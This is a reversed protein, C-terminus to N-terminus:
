AVSRNEAQPPRASVRRAATEMARQLHEHKDALHVYVKSIMELSTHGMCAAVTLPDVGNLIANTGWAHRLLYVCVDKALDTKQKIRAIRLRMANVTWPQHRANLFVFESSAHRRMVEMLKQMASTLYIVRPQGTKHATKHFPLVLRDAQVFSWILTRLEKPRAGTERLGFLLVKFDKDSHRLLVRFEADTMARQRINARPCKMGKLPNNALIGQECAWSFARFISRRANRETTQGWNKEEIWRTLHYPKLASALVYGSHEAFMEGFWRLNRHTEPSLHTESWNLFAEIIDAARASTQEPAQPTVAKLEHFKQEAQKWNERGEVLRVKKGALTIMWWGTDKRYWIKNVRPM